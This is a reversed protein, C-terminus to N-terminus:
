RTLVWNQIPSGIVDIQRFNGEVKDMLSFGFGSWHWVTLAGVPIAADYTEELAVMEQLGDGDLDVARLRSVPRILASGAWLENYDQRAWGILIVHCSMGNQDHFDNIRGASPLFRDIPWPQFPRWVVLTVEDLGDRNLDTIQAEKVQWSIPSQWFVQSDCNTIQLIEGSLELCELKGDGDFDASSASTVLFGSKFEQFDNEKVLEQDELQWISAQNPSVLSLALISAFLLIYKMMILSTQRM